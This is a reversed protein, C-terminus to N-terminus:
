FFQLACLDYRESHRWWAMAESSSKEWAQTWSGGAHKSRPNLPEPSSISKLNLKESLLCVLERFGPVFHVELPFLELDSIWVEFV